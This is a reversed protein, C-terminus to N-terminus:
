ISKQRSSHVTSSRRFWVQGRLAELLRGSPQGLVADLVGSPVGWQAKRSGPQGRLPVLCVPVRAPAPCVQGSEGLVPTATYVRHLYCSIKNRKTNQSKVIEFYLKGNIQQM